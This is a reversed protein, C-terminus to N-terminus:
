APGVTAVVVLDLADELASSGPEGELLVFDEPTVTPVVAALWDPWASPAGATLADHLTTGHAREVGALRPGHHLGLQCTPVLPASALVDALEDPAFERVHFPNVPAADGPSFTRRNPTSIVLTGGPRVLRALEALTGDVDHLHEIVQLLVILDASGPELPIAGLEAELVAIAPDTGYRQRAHAAVAPDLEIGTVRADRAGPAAARVAEALLALGYGEGCGADVAHVAGRQRALEAALRYAVVHRAFWYREEAVGPVTREGTLPLTPPPEPTPDPPPDAPPSPCRHPETTPSPTM